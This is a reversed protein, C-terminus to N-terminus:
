KIFVFSKLFEKADVKTLYRLHLCWWIRVKLRALYIRHLPVEHHDVDVNMPLGMFFSPMVIFCVKVCFLCCISLSVYFYIRKRFIEKSHWCLIQTWGVKKLDNRKTTTQKSWWEMLFKSWRKRAWGSSVCDRFVIWREWGRRHMRTVKVLCTRERERERERLWVGVSIVCGSMCHMRCNRPLGKREGMWRYRSALTYWKAIQSSRKPHKM